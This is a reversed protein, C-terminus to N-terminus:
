AVLRIRRVTSEGNDIKLHLGVAMWAAGSRVQNFSDIAYLGPVLGFGVRSNEFSM